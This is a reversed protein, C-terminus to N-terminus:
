LDQEKFEELAKSPINIIGTLCFNYTQILMETQCFLFLIEWIRLVATLQGLYLGFNHAHSYLLSLLM